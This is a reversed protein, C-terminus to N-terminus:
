PRRSGAAPLSKSRTSSCRSPTSTASSASSSRTDSRPRRRRARGSPACQRRPPRRDCPSSRLAIRPSSSARWTAPSGASDASSRSWTKSATAGRCEGAAARAPRRPAPARRAPVALQGEQELGVQLLRAAPHAVDVRHRRDGRRLNGVRRGLPHAVAYAQSSSTRPSSCRVSRRAPVSRSTAAPASGPRRPARARRHRRGSAAPTRPRGCSRTRWRRTMGDRSAHRTPRRAAPAARPAAVRRGSASPTTSCSPSTWRARSASGALRDPAAHQADRGRGRLGPQRDRRVRQARSASPTRATARARPRGRGAIRKDREEAGAAGRDGDELREVLGAQHHPQDGLPGVHPALRLVVGTWRKM